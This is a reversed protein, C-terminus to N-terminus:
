MSSHDIDGTWFHYFLLQIILNSKIQSKPLIYTYVKFHVFVTLSLVYFLQFSAKVDRWSVM